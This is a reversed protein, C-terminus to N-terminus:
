PRVLLHFIWLVVFVRTRSVRGQHGLRLREAGPKATLAFDALDVQESTADTTDTTDTM